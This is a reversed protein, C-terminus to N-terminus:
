GRDRPSPSTYLLCSDVVKFVEDIEAAVQACVDVGSWNSGRDAHGDLDAGQSGGPTVAYASMAGAGRQRQGGSKQRNPAPALDRIPAM